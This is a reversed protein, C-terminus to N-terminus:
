FDPHEAPVGIPLQGPPQSAWPFLDAVLANSQANWGEAGEFEFIPSRGLQLKNASEPILFDGRLRTVRYDGNVDLSKSQAQRHWVRLDIAPVRFVVLEQASARVCFNGGQCPAPDGADLLTPALQSNGRHARWAARPWVM